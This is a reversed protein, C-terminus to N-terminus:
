LVYVAYENVVFIVTKYYKLQVHKFTLPHSLVLIDMTQLLTIIV